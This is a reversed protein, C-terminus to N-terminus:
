VSPCRSVALGWDRTERWGLLMQFVAVCTLDGDCKRVEVIKKEVLRQLHLAKLELHKVKGVGKRLAVSKGASSDTYLRIVFNYGLEQLMNRVASVGLDLQEAHHQKAAM